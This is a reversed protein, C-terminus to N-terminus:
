GAKEALVKELDALLKQRGEVELGDYLGRIRGQGDIILFKQSHFIPMNPDGDNEGIPLKFGHRVLNWVYERTGTLFLWHEPDAQAWGAYETLRAPTDFDPDVTFSLLRLDPWRAHTGLSKQLEAMQSTMMPCPGQCRTFIFAAISVKGRLTQLTVSQGSRETLSFDPLEILVPPDLEDPAAITGGTVPAPAPRNMVTLVILATTGLSVAALLIVLTKQSNNKM